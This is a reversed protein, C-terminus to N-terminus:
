TPATNRCGSWRLGWKEWWCTATEADLFTAIARREAPDSLPIWADGILARPLGFRRTQVATATTEMLEMDLTVYDHYDVDAYSCLRGPLEEDNPLKDVNSVWRTASRKLRKVEWNGPVDGLCEVNTPQSKPHPPLMM